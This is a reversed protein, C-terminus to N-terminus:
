KSFTQICPLCCVFLMDINLISINPKSILAQFIMFTSTPSLEIDYSNVDTM